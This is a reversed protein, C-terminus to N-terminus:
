VFTHFPLRASMATPINKLALPSRLSVETVAVWTKALSSAGRRGTLTCLKQDSSLQWVLLLGSSITEIEEPNLKKLSLAFRVAARVV